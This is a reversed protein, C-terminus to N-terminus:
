RSQTFRARWESGHQWYGVRQRPQVAGDLRYNTDCVVSDGKAECDLVSVDSVTPPKKTVPSPRSPGDEILAIPRGSRGIRIASHEPTESATATWTMRLTHTLAAAAESSSPAAPEPSCAILLVTLLLVFARM